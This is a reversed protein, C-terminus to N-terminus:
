PWAPGTRRARRWGPRRKGTASTLQDLPTRTKPAHRDVQVPQEPVVGGRQQPEAHHQGTVGLQGLLQDLLTRGSSAPGSSGPGPASRVYRRRITSLRDWAWWRWRRTTRPRVGSRGPVASGASCSASRRESSASASSTTAPGSSLARTWAATVVPAARRRRRRRLKSAPAAASTTAPPAVTTSTSRPGSSPSNRVPGGEEGPVAGSGGGASGGAIGSRNAYTAPSPFTAM